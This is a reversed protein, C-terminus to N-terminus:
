RTHTRIAAVDGDVFSFVDVFEFLTEDSADRLQGRVAVEEDDESVYVARLDHSTNRNPREDRMFSVLADRGALIQDPRYHAVPLALLAALRDYDHDDLAAYYARVVDRHDAADM